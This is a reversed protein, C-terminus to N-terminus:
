TVLSARRRGKAKKSKEKKPKRSRTGVKSDDQTEKKPRSKKTKRKSSTSSAAFPDSGDFSNGSLFGDSDVFVDEEFSPWGDGDRSWLVDQSKNIKKQSGSGVSTNPSKQTETEAFDLNSVEQTALAKKKGKKESVANKRLVKKKGADAMSPFQSPDKTSSPTSPLFNTPSKKPSFNDMYSKDPITALPTGYDNAQLKAMAQQYNLRRQAAAGGTRAIARQTAGYRAQSLLNKTKGPHVGAHLMAPVGGHGGNIDKYLEEEAVYQKTMVTPTTLDSVVSIADSYGPGIKPYNDDDDIVDELSPAAAKKQEPPKTTQKQAALSALARLEPSRLAALIEPSDAEAQQLKKIIELIQNDNSQSNNPISDNRNKSASLRKQEEKLAGPDVGDIGVVQLLNVLAALKENVADVDGTM